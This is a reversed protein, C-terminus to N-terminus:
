VNLQKRLNEFYHDFGEDDPHLRLSAFYATDHPVLDYGRILTTRPLKKCIAALDETVQLFPGHAYLVQEAGLTCAKIEEFTLKM